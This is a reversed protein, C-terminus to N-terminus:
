TSQPYGEPSVAFWTHALTDLLLSIAQPNTPRLDSFSVITWRTHSPLNFYVTVVYTGVSHEHLNFLFLWLRLDSLSLVSKVLRSLTVQCFDVTPTLTDLSAGRVMAMYTPDYLLVSRMPWSSCSFLEINHLVIKQYCSERLIPSVVLEGLQTKGSITPPFALADFEGELLSLHDFLSREHLAGTFM